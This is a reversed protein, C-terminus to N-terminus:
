PEHVFPVNPMDPYKRASRDERQRGGVDSRSKRHEPNSDDRSRSADDGRRGTSKSRERRAQEPYPRPPYDQSDHYGEPGQHDGEVSRPSREAQSVAMREASASWDKEPVHPGENHSPALTQPDRRDWTDGESRHQQQHTPEPYPNPPYAQRDYSAQNYHGQGHDSNSPYHHLEDSPGRKEASSKRYEEHDNPPYGHRDRRSESGQEYPSQRNGSPERELREREKRKQRDERSEGDRRRKGTDGRRERGNNLSPLRPMAMPDPQNQVQGRQQNMEQEVQNIYSDLEKDTPKPRRWDLCGCCARSCPDRTGQGPGAFCSICFFVAICPLCLLECGGCDGM